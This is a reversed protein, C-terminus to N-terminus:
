TLGGMWPESRVPECHEWSNASSEEWHNWQTDWVAKMEAIMFFPFHGLITM